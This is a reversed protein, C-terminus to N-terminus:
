HIMLLNSYRVLAQPNQLMKKVGIIQTSQPRVCRLPHGLIAMEIAPIQCISSHLKFYKFILGCVLFLSVFHFMCFVMKFIFRVFELNM